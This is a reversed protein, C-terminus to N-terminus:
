NKRFQKYLEIATEQGKNIDDIRMEEEMIIRIKGAESSGRCEAVLVWAYGLIKNKTVGRGEYYMVGLKVQAAVYGSNAADVFLNYAAKYNKRVGQGHYLMLATKFKAVIDGANIGDQYLSLALRYNRPTGLGKQYMNGLNIKADVHGRKAATSFWKFAEDYSRNTGQGNYYMVGLNYQAYLNGNYAESSFQSFATSYDGNKYAEWASEVNATSISETFACVLLAILVALIKTKWSSIM